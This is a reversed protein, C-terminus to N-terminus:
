SGYVLKHIEEQQQLINFLLSIVKLSSTAQDEQQPSPFQKMKNTVVYFQNGFLSLEELFAL